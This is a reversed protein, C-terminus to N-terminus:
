SGPRRRRRVPPRPRAGDVGRRVRCRPDARGGRARRTGPRATCRWERRVRRTSPPSAASATPGSASRATSPRHHMTCRQLLITRRSLTAVFRNSAEVGSPVPRPVQRKSSRALAYVIISWEMPQSHVACGPVDGWGHNTTQGRSRKPTGRRAGPRAQEPTGDPRPGVARAPARRM